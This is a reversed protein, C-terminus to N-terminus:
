ASLGKLAIDIREELAKDTMVISNITMPVLGPLLGKLSFKNLVRIVFVPALIAGM